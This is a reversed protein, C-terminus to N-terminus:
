EEPEAEAGETTTEPDPRLAAQARSLDDKHVWVEAAVGPIDGIGASLYDGVVRARIGEEELRQQLIHAEPPTLNTAVPVIDDPKEDAM